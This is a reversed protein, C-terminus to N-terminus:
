RNRGKHSPGKMRGNPGGNKMDYFGVGYIYYLPNGAEDTKEYILGSWEGDLCKVIGPDDVVNRDHDAWILSVTEANLHPFVNQIHALIDASAYEPTRDRGHGAMDGILSVYEVNEPMGTMATEISGEVGHYDSAFALYHANDQALIPVFPTSFVLSLVAALLIMVTRLRKMRQKGM